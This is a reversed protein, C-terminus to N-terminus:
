FSVTREFYGAPNARWRRSDWATVLCDKFFEQRSPRLRGNDSKYVHTDGQIATQIEPWSCQLFEREPMYLSCNNDNFGIMRSTRPTRFPSFWAEIRRCRSSVIDRFFQGRYQM